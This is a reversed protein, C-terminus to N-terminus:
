KSTNKSSNTYNKGHLDTLQRVSLLSDGPKVPEGNELTPFCFGFSNM